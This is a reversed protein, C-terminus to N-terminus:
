CVFEEQEATCPTAYTQGFLCTHTCSQCATKWVCGGSGLFAPICFMLMYLSRQQMVEQSYPLRHNGAKRCVVFPFDSKVVSRKLESTFLIRKSKSFTM